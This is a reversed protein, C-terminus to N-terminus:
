PIALTTVQLADQPAFAATLSRGSQEFVAFCRRRSATSPLTVTQAKVFM